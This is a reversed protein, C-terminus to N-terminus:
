IKHRTKWELNAKLLWGLNWQSAKKLPSKLSNYRIYMINAFLNDRIACGLGVLLFRGGAAIGGFV